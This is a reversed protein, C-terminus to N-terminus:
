CVEFIGEVVVMIEVVRVLYVSDCQYSVHIGGATFGVRLSHVTKDFIGVIGDVICFKGKLLVESLYWSCLQACPQESDPSPFSKSNVDLSM